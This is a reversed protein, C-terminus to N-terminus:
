LKKNIIIECLGKDISIRPTWELQIKAKTVDAVTDLVENERRENSYKIPINKKFKSVLMETIEKVPYSLGLGLNFIEFSTKEYEVAKCYANVVDDVHIFDRKPRPDKLSIKGTKKIQKIILPILFNDDQGQGYINFPRFIIIPVGFDRYYSECLQEGILKSQCYPNFTSVPHKEDIPLYQPIGYVYSSIYIMKASYRRCLELVNLTSTINNSFFERPTNYSDPVFVRAALHIIVDFKKIKKVSKWNTLDTGKKIDLGIIEYYIKKLQKVLHSGM